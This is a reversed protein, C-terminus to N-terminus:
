GVKKLGTKYRRANDVYHKASMKLGEIQEPSLQRVAKAPSGLIMSGDPFEKGETVLSGAGVLCNKGIKAGNLVVAQIGILSGDGITCGHLMVQHGVTVNEGITLPLGMDAHLVSNDQINSGRGVSITETDGRIVVGFWVSSDEALKVNGMVQANDAVWASEHVAPALNDLQYLAM